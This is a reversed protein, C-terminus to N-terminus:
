HGGGALRGGLTGSKPEGYHSATVLMQHISVFMEGVQAETHEYAAVTADLKGSMAAASRLVTHLTYHARMMADGFIANAPQDGMEADSMEVSEIPSGSTEQGHMGLQSMEDLVDRLGSSIMRLATLDVDFGSV